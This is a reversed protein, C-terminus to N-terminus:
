AQMIDAHFRRMADMVQHHDAGPFRVSIQQVGADQAIGVHELIPGPELGFGLHERDRIPTAENEYKSRTTDGYDIAHSFSFADPDRGAKVLAERTETMRDLVRSLPGSTAPYLGDGLAVARRIANKGWGGIWIPPHPQQVPRPDFVLDQFSTWRGQFSPNDSTWLEKMARLAEDLRPGREEFPVGLLDFENKLWGAGVGVILRGGSLVDLSALAKALRIPHYYPVVLVSFFIRVNKTAAAIAAGLVLSDYWKTPLVDLHSRPVVVHEGITITEFGLDDALRATEYIATADPYRGFPYLSVGFKM